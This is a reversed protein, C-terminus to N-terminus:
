AVLDFATEGLVEGNIIFEVLHTGPYHVRTTFNRIPRTITLEARAHPELTLEKWKFVKKSTGGTKKVYHIAYDIVLKQITSGTSTLKATIQVAGGLVLSSPTVSFTEVKVEAKHGAGFVHLARTDGKKILTRM